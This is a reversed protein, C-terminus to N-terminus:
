DRCSHGATTTAAGLYFIFQVMYDAPAIYEVVANRLEPRLNRDIATRSEPDWDYYAPASYSIMNSENSLNCM